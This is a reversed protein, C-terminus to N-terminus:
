HMDRAYSSISVQLPCKTCEPVMMRSTLVPCQMAGYTLVTGSVGYCLTYQTLVPCQTADHVIDTGPM